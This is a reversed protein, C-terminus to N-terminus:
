TPQRRWGLPPGEAAHLRDADVVAPTIALAYLFQELSADYSTLFHDGAAVRKIMASADTPFDLTEDYPNSPLLADLQEQNSFEALDTTAAVPKTTEGTATATRGWFSSTRLNHSKQRRRQRKCSDADEMSVDFGDIWHHGDQQSYDDNYYDDALFETLTGDGEIDDACCVELPRPYTFIEEHADINDAASSRFSHPEVDIKTM